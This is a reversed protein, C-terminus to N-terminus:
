AAGNSRRLHCTAVRVSHTYLTRGDGLRRIPSLTFPFAVQLTFTTRTSVAPFITCALVQRRQVSAIAPSDAALRQTRTIVYLERSLLARLLATYSAAERFADGRLRQARHSHHPTSGDKQRRNCTLNVIRHSRQTRLCCRTDQRLGRPLHSYYATAYARVPAAGTTFAPHGRRIHL